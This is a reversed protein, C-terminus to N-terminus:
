IVCIVADIVLNIILHTPTPTSNTPSPPVTILPKVVVLRIKSAM